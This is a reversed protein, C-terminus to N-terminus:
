PKPKPQSSQISCVHLSDIGISRMCPSSALLVLPFFLLSSCSRLIVPFFLLSYYSLPFVLLFLSPCLLLFVNSQFLFLSGFPALLPQHIAPYGAAEGQPGGRRFSPPKPRFPVECSVRLRQWKEKKKTRREGLLRGVASAALGQASHACFQPREGGFPDKKPVVGLPPDAKLLPTQRKACPAPAILAGM